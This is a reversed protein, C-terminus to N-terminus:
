RPADGYPGLGPPGFVDELAKLVYPPLFSGAQESPRSWWGDLAEVLTQMVDPARGVRKWRRAGLSWTAASRQGTPEGNHHTHLAVVVDHGAYLIRIRDTSSWRTGDARKGSETGELLDGARARIM